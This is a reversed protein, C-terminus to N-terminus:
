ILNERGMLREYLDGPTVDGPWRGDNFLHVGSDTYVQDVLQSCILHESDQVREKLLIEAPELHLRRAALAFYDLFSYPTGQYKRANAVIATRQGATLPIIGSSWQVTFDAYESLDTIRAGGPEAEIIQGDGLYLFAHEFESFGDGNLWQGFRVFVGGAGAIQTLGFDGPQLNVTM